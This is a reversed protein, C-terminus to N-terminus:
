SGTEQSDVLFPMLVEIIAILDKANLMAIKAPPENSLEVIFKSMNGFNWSKSDLPLESMQKSTPEDMLIESVTEPGFVIPFKLEYRIKAM